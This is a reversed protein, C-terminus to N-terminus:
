SVGKWAALHLVTFSDNEDQQNLHKKLIGGHDLLVNATAAHGSNCAHHLATAGDISTANINIGAHGIFLKVIETFGKESAIHLPTENTTKTVANINIGEHDLLCKVIQYREGALRLAM